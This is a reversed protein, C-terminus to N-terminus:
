LLLLQPQPLLRPPLQGGGCSSSCRSCCRRSGGSCRRPCCCPAPTGRSTVVPHRRTVWSTGSAEPPCWCTAPARRTCTTAACGGATAPSTSPHQGEGCRRGSTTAHQRSCTCATVVGAGADACKAAAPSTSPRCSEGCRWWRNGAAATPVRRTVGPVCGPTTTQAATTDLRGNRCGQRCRHCRRPLIRKCPRTAPPLQAFPIFDPASITTTTSKPSPPRRRTHCGVGRRVAVASSLCSSVLVAVLLQHLVLQLQLPPTCPGVTM